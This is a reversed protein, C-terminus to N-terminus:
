GYADRRGPYHNPVDIKIANWNGTEDISGPHTSNSSFSVVGHGIRLLGATPRICAELSLLKLNPFAGFRHGVIFGIGTGYFLVCCPQPCESQGLFLPSPL